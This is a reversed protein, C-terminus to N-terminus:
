EKFLFDDVEAFGLFECVEVLSIESRQLSVAYFNYDIIANKFASLGNGHLALHHPSFPLLTVYGEANYVMKSNSIMGILASVEQGLLAVLCSSSIRKVLRTRAISLPCLLFCPLAKEFVQKRDDIGVDVDESVTLFKSCAEAYKLRFDLLRAQALWLRLKLSKEEVGVAEAATCFHEARVFDDGDLYLECILLLQGMRESPDSLRNMDIQSYASAAENYRGQAILAQASQEFDTM